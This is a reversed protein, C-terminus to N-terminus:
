PYSRAPEVSQLFYNSIVRKTNFFVSSSTSSSSRRPHWYVTQSILLSTAHICRQLWCRRKKATRWSGKTTLWFRGMIEHHLGKGVLCVSQIINSTVLAEVTIRSVRRTHLLSQTVSLSQTIVSSPSDSSYYIIFIICYFRGLVSGRYVPFRSLRFIFKPVSNNGM